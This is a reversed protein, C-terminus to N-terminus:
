SGFTGGIRERATTGNWPELARLMTDSDRWGELWLSAFPDPLGGPLGYPNATVPKGNQRAERGETYATV